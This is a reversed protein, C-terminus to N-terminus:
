PVKQLLGAFVGDNYFSAWKPDGEVRFLIRGAPQDPPRFATGGFYALPVEMPGFRVRLRDGKAFIELAPGTGARWRGAIANALSPPVPGDDDPSTPLELIGRAIAGALASAAYRESETNTLVVVTVGGVSEMASTWGEGSGTWAVLPHGEAASGLRTGLGYDFTVGNSLKGPTRMADFSRPSVVSGDLLAAAFRALDAATTCLRGSANGYTGWSEAPRFGQRGNDYSSARHPQVDNTNCVRISTLGSRAALRDLIYRDYREGSLKEILLGLVDYGVNSYSWTSGPAALYLHEPDVSEIWERASLDLRINRHFPPGGYDALGASHGLLQLLTPDFGPRTWSPFYKSLPDQLRLKGAEALQLIAAATFAKTISNIRYVTAASAPVENELEALGYGAEFELHGDRAVAVSLGAIPGRELADSAVKAVVDAIPASLMLLALVANM